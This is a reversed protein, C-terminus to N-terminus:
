TASAESGNKKMITSQMATIVTNGSSAVQSGSASTPTVLFYDRHLALALKLGNWHANIRPLQHLDCDGDVWGEEVTVAARYHRRVCDYTAANGDGNPYAFLDVSRDLRAELARRSEGVEAELAEPRLSPLIPHTM